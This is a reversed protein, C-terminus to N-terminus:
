LIEIGNERALDQALPGVVGGPKVRIIKLGDDLARRVDRASVYALAEPAPEGGPAPAAAGGAAPAPQASPRVTQAFAQALRALPALTVGYGELTAMVQRIGEELGPRLMVGPRRFADNAALVGKGRLLAEQIPCYDPNSLQAARAAVTLPLTPVVLWDARDLVRDLAEPPVNSLLCRSGTQEKVEQEDMCMRASDNLFVSTKGAMQQIAEVQELATNQGPSNGHVVFLVRPGEKPQPHPMLGMERLVGRLTARVRAELDHAM